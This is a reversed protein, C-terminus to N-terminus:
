VLEITEAEVVIATLGDETGSEHLENPEWYAASGVAVDRRDEWARVWGSGEVVLFLQALVAPHEGLVGGPALRISVVHASGSIRAIGAVSAGSSGHQTILRAPDFRVLRM